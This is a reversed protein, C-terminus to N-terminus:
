EDDDVEESETFPGIGCGRERCCCLRIRRKGKGKRASEENQEELEEEDIEEAGSLRTMEHIDFSPVLPRVKIEAEAEKQGFGDGPKKQQQSM